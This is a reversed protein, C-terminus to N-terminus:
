FSPNPCTTPVYIIEDCGDSKHRKFDFLLTFMAIFLVLHNLAYQQGICQHAGIGFGLYNRKYIKDEQRKESFRDPDFQEPDIFGQLSSDSVSPFVITGKPITYSETLPFDERAIHPVMAAPTRYRIIERAVAQTYKMERLQEATILTNSEPSWIRGVEERVKALVAPHQDLLMIAWLLSSTSADQAAFLFDFLYSGIDIDSSHPPYQNVGSQPMSDIENLIEQMWFDILCSPEKGSKLQSKCEKACDTLIEILRKVAFKAKRFGTGPLDIPMNMLGVNFLIYDKNFDARAKSSLYPGVFVTQSTELNIDRCLLRLEIPVSLNQSTLKKKGYPHSILNFADPRVNSFIKHSLEAKQVYVIFM